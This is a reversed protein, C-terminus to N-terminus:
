VDGKQNPAPPLAKVAEHVATVIKELYSRGQRNTRGVILKTTLYDVDSAAVFQAISRNGMAGWYSSWSQGYCEVILRGAEPKVDQLIVTIPDLGEVDFITFVKTPLVCEIRMRDGVSIWENPQVTPTASLAERIADAIRAELEEFTVSQPAVWARPNYDASPHNVVKTLPELVKKARQEPTV